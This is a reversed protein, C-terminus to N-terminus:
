PHDYYFIFFLNSLNVDHSERPLSQTTNKSFTSWRLRSHNVSVVSKGDYNPFLFSFGPQNLVNVTIQSELLPDRDRGAYVISIWDHNATQSGLVFLFLSLFCVLTFFTHTHRTRIWYMGCSRLDLWNAMTKIVDQDQSQDLMIRPRCPCGVLLGDAIDENQAVNNCFITM